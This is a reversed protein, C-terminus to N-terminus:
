TGTPHYASELLIVQADLELLDQLSVQHSSVYGQVIRHAVARGTYRTMESSPWLGYLYQRCTEQNPWIPAPDDMRSRLFQYAALEEEPEFSFSPAMWLPSTGASLRSAFDDALGEAIVCGPLNQALEQKTRYYVAHHYEHAIVFPLNALWGALPYVVLRMGGSKQSYAASLGNLKQLNEARGDGPLVWVPLDQGFPLLQQCEALTSEVKRTLDNETNKLEDVTNALESLDITEWNFMGLEEVLQHLLAVDGDSFCRPYRQVFTQDFATDRADVSSDETLLEIFERAASYEKM